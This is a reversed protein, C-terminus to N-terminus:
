KSAEECARVIAKSRDEPQVLLICKFSKVDSQSQKVVEDLQEIIEQTNLRQRQGRNSLNIILTSLAVQSVLFVALIAITSKNNM